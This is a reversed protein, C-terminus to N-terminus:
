EGAEGGSKEEHWKHGGKRGKGCKESMKRCMPCASCMETMMKRMCEMDPKVEVEKQLNLDKDYKILKNGMLLAVGGDQTAIMSRGMMMEAMGGHMPCCCGKDGKKMMPCMGGDPHKMAVAQMAGMVALCMVALLVSVVLWKKM